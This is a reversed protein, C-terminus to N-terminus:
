GHNVEVLLSGDEVVRAEDGSLLLTTASDEQILAPGLVSQDVGLAARDVIPVAVPGGTEGPLWIQRVGQWKPKTAKAVSPEWREEPPITMSLRLATVELSMGEMNHGYAAKHRRNFEEEVGGLSEQGDPWRVQLTFEQGQYRVELSRAEVATSTEFGSEAFRRRAAKSLEQFASRLEGPQVAPLSAVFTRSVDHRLDTNIMGLASFMGPHCPVYFRAIGLSRALLSGHLAGAGGFCCLEFNRPDLGRYVTIRRVAADMVAAIIEIVGRATDQLSKGLKAALPRLAEEAASRDLKYEGGLFVDPDLSGLIVHADTVTPACGGLGYCAPGPQAGASQPGVRFQHVDDITAISGGGAGVTEIDASAILLPWGGLETEFRMRPQGGVVLGLDTSTGGMDLSILNEIGLRQALSAAGVLGGVPGSMMTQVPRQEADEISATGGNSQMILPSTRLGLARLREKLDASYVSMLPMAMANMVTTSTREFERWEPAIESSICVAADPLEQRIRDRISHEHQPSRYSNILSVAVTEPAHERLQDILKDLTWPTLEQAVEGDADIREEIELRDRSEVLPHPKHPRLDYARSADGRMIELVDKFGRTTILLARVLEDELFANVVVTTGHVFVEVADLNDGLREIGAMVGDAQNERTTPVKTVRVRGDEVSVVDTFTGGIDAAVRRM